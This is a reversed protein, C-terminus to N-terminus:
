RFRVAFGEREAVAYISLLAELILLLGTPEDMVLVQSCGNAYVFQAPQADGVVEVM